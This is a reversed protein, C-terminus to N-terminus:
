IWLLIRFTERLLHILCLTQWHPHLSRKTWNRLKLRIFQHNTWRIHRSQTLASPISFLLQHYRLINLCELAISFLLLHDAPTLQLHTPPSSILLHNIHEYKLINKILFILNKIIQSNIQKQHFFIILKSLSLM